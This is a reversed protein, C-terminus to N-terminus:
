HEFLKKIISERSAKYEEMDYEPTEVLCKEAFNELTNLKKAPVGWIENEPINKTVVAGAAVISNNGVKVGPMIICRAGLFCNQGIHIAGFRLVSKYKERNRFVRTSGDHTLFQVDKSVTTQDGVYILYPESSWEQKGTIQVNRGLHVGIKNAYQIPTLVHYQIRKLLSKIRM